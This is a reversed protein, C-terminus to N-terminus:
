YWKLGQRDFSLRVYQGSRMQASNDFNITWTCLCTHRLYSSLSYPGWQNILRKFSCIYFFKFRKYHPVVKISIQCSSEPKKNPQTQVKSSHREVQKVAKTPSKPDCLCMYILQHMQSGQVSKLKLLAVHLCIVINEITLIKYNRLSILELQNAWKVRKSM